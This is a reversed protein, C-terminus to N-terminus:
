RHVFGSLPEPFPTYRYSYVLGMAIALGVLVTGLVFLAAWRKVHMGPRLWTRWGRPITVDERVGVWGDPLCKDVRSSAAPPSPLIVPEM